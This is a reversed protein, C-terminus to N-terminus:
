ARVLTCATTLYSNKGVHPRNCVLQPLSQSQVLGTAPRAVGLRGRSAPRGHYAPSTFGNPKFGGAGTSRFDVGFHECGFNGDAVAKTVAAASFVHHARELRELREGREMCSGGAISVASRNYRPAPAPSGGAGGGRHGSVGRPRREERPRSPTAPNQPSMTPGPAKLRAFALRELHKRIAEMQRHLLYAAREKQTMQKHRWINLARRRRSALDTAFLRELCKGMRKARDGM